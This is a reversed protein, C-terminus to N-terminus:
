RHQADGPEPEVARNKQGLEGAERAVREAAVLVDDRQEERQERNADADTREEALSEGSPADLETEDREARDPEGNEGDIQPERAAVEVSTAKRPEVHEERVDRVPADGCVEHQDAKEAPEEDHREVGEDLLAR